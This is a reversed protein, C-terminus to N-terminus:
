WKFPTRKTPQAPVGDKVPAVDVPQPPASVSARTTVRVVPTAAAASTVAPARTEVFANASPPLALAYLSLGIWGAGFAATLARLALGDRAAQQTMYVLGAVVLGALAFGVLLLRRGPLPSNWGFVLLLVFANLLLGQALLLGNGPKGASPTPAAPTVAQARALEREFDAHRRDATKAEIRITAPRSPDHDAASAPRAPPPAAM